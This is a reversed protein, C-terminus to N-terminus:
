SVKSRLRRIFVANDNGWLFSQLSRYATVSMNDPIRLYHMDTFESAEISFRSDLKCVEMARAMAADSMIRPQTMDM